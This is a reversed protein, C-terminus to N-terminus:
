REVEKKLGALVMTWNKEFEARSEPSVPKSRDRNSQTLVVTTGKGAPRLEFAVEHYNEPRDETGSTPSWHTYSLRRPAEFVQITGKDEYPKGKWEGRFRIPHGVTWDTIVDAGFFFRKLAAPTTLATWIEGPPADITTQVVVDNSPKSPTM